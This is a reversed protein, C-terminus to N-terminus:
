STLTPASNVLCTATLTAASFPTTGGSGTKTLDATTAFGGAGDWAHATLSVTGSFNKTPLFRILDSGKLLLARRTSVSPLNNWQGAQFVQWVGASANDVATIAIGLATGAADTFAAGFVSAVTNGPPNPNANSTSFGLVPTFVAAVGKAWSPAQKVFNVLMSPQPRDLRFRILFSDKLQETQV